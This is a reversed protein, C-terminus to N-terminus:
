KGITSELKKNVSSAIKSETERQFDPMTQLSSRDRTAAIM